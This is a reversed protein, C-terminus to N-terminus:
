SSKVKRSVVSRKGGVGGRGVEATSKLAEVM